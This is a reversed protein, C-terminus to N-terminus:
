QGGDSPPPSRYGPQLRYIRRLLDLQEQLAATQQLQWPHGGERFTNQWATQQQQWPHGGESFTTKWQQLQSLTTSHDVLDPSPTSSLPSTAPASSGAEPQPRRKKSPRPHPPAPECTDASIDIDFSAVFEVGQLIPPIRPQLEHADWGRLRRHRIIATVYAGGPLRSFEKAKKVRLDFFRAVVWGPHLPTSTHMARFLRLVEEYMHHEGTPKYAFSQRWVNFIFRYVPDTISGAKSTSTHFTTEGTLQTWLELNRKMRQDEDEDFGLMKDRLQMDTFGLAKAFSDYTEEHKRGGLRFTICTTVRTAKRRKNLEFSSWFEQLPLLLADEQLQSVALLNGQELREAVKEAWGPRTRLSEFDICVPPQVRLEKIKCYRAWHEDDMETLHRHADPFESRPPFFPEDISIGAQERPQVVPPPPPSPSTPPPPLAKATSKARTPRLKARPTPRSSSAVKKGARRNTMKAFARRFDVFCGFYEFVLNKSSSLNCSALGASV